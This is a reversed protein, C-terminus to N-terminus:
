LQLKHKMRQFSFFHLLGSIRMVTQEVVHKDLSDSDRGAYSYMPVSPSNTLVLGHTQGLNAATVSFRM